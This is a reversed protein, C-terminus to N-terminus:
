YLIELTPAMIVKGLTLTGPSNNGSVTLSGDALSGTVIVGDIGQVPQNLLASLEAVQATLASIDAPTGSSANFADLLANFRDLFTRNGAGKANVLATDASLKTLM